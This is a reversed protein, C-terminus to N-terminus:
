LPPRFLGAGADDLFSGYEQSPFEALSTMLPQMETTSKRSTITQPSYFLMDYLSELLSVSKEHPKVEENRAVERLSSRSIFSTLVGDHMVFMHSLKLTRFIEDVQSLQLSDTAIFPATDLVLSAKTDPVIKITAGTGSLVGGSSSSSVSMEESECSAGSVIKALPPTDTRSRGATFNILVEMEGSISRRRDQRNSVNHWSSYPVLKGGVFVSFHLPSSFIESKAAAFLAAPNLDGGSRMDGGGSDGSSGGRNGSDISIPSSRRSAQHARNRLEQLAVDLHHLTVTGLLTMEARSTVVPIVDLGIEPALLQRRVIADLVQEAEEYTSEPTLCLSAAVDIAIESAPLAHLGRTLKPSLPVGNTDVLSEYIDKSFSNGVFAATAIAVGIPVRLHSVICLEYVIIATSSARTVGAAFAAAGALAFDQATVDISIANFTSSAKFLDGTLHGLAGGIQFVPTFLGVPLPLTVSFLTTIVKYPVYLIMALASHQQDPQFVSYITFGSRDTGFAGVMEIYTLFAIFTSVVFTYAWRRVWCSYDDAKEHARPALFTNRLESVKAVLFVFGAGSLGAVIGVLTFTVLHISTYPEHEDHEPPSKSGFLLYGTNPDISLFVVLCSICALFARPLNETIYSYSTLEITFLMGGYATGFISTVGAGAACGLIALRQSAHRHISRFPHSRMFLDALACTIHIMPGEEGVSLGGLQAFMLGLTKGAVLRWSLLAPKINGSLITKIEPIGGGRGSPCLLDIALLSLMSCAVCGLVYVTMSQADVERSDEVVLHRWALVSKVRDISAALLASLSGLCILLTPVQITDWLRALFAWRGHTSASPEPAHLEGQLASFVDVRQWQADDRHASKKGM